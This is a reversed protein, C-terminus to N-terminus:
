SDKKNYGCCSAECVSDEEEFEESSSEDSTYLVEKKVRKRRSASIMNGCLCNFVSTEAVCYRTLSGAKGCIWCRIDSSCPEDCADGSFPSAATSRGEDKGTNKEPSALSYTDSAYLSSDEMEIEYASSCTTTALSHRSICFGSHELCTQTGANSTKPFDKSCKPVLTGVLLGEDLLGKGCGARFVALSFFGKFDYNHYRFYFPFETQLHTIFGLQKYYYNDSQYLNKYQFLHFAENGEASTESAVTKGLLRLSILNDIKRSLEAHQIDIKTELKAIALAVHIRSLQRYSAGQSLHVGSCRIIKKMENNPNVWHKLMSGRLKTDDSKEGEPLDNPIELSPVSYLLASFKENEDVTFIEIVYTEDQNLKAYRQYSQSRQKIVCLFAAGPTECVAPPQGKLSYLAYVNTTFTEGYDVLFIICSGDCKNFNSAVARCFMPRAYEKDPRVVSAICAISKGVEIEPLLEYAPHVIQKSLLVSVSKDVVWYTGCDVKRVIRVTAVCPLARKKSLLPYMYKPPPVSIM